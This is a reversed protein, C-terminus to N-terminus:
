APRSPDDLKVTDAAPDAAAVPDAPAGPPPAGGREHHEVMVSLSVRASSVLAGALLVAAGALALWLGVEPDADAGNVAPPHNVLQAVVVVLATVGLAILPADPLRRELESRSILTTIALAALAALVLDVVEFVTWASVGEGEDGYWDLFLSVLLVLGGVAAVVAGADLRRPM